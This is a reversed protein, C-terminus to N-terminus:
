DISEKPPIDWCDM